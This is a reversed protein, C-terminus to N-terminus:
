YQCNQSTHTAILLHSDISNSPHSSVNTNTTYHHQDKSEEDYRHRRNNRTQQQQQQKQDEDLDIWQVSLSPWTLGVNIISDYLIPTSDFFQRYEMHRHRHLLMEDSSSSSPPSVSSSALQSM